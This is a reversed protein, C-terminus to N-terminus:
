TFASAKRAALMRIGRPTVWWLAITSIALVALLSNCAPKRPEQENRVPQPPPAPETSPGDTWLRLTVITLHQRVRGPTKILSIVFGAARLGGRFSEPGAAM